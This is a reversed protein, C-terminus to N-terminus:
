TRGRTAWAVDPDLGEYTRLRPLIESELTAYFIFAFQEDTLTGLNPEEGRELVLEKGALDAIRVEGCTTNEFGAFARRLREQVQAREGDDLTPWLLDLAEWGFSAHFHEDRLIQRACDEALPDTSVVAVAELMPKSMTEGLCCATLIARAAWGRIEHETAEDPRESRTRPADPWPARPTRWRFLVASQEGEPYIARAAAACLEVHRVEDTILRALGGLVEAPARAECLAHLVASFQHVSGHESQARSIWHWGARRRLAADYRSPDFAAFDPWPDRHVQHRHMNGLARTTPALMRAADSAEDSM